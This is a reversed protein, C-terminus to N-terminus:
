LEGRLGKGHSGLTDFQGNGHSMRTKQETQGETLPTAVLLCYQNWCSPALQWTVLSQKSKMLDLNSIELFVTCHVGSAGRSVQDKMGPSKVIPVLEPEHPSTDALLWQHASPWRSHSWLSGPRPSSWSCPWACWSFLQARSGPWPHVNQAGSASFATFVYIDWLLREM